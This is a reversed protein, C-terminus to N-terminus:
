REIIVRVECPQPYNGTNDVVVLRLTYVGEPLAGTNWEGLIGNVVPQYHLGDILHWDIPKEGFGFELKYYWFNDIAATGKVFTTGWCDLKTNVYPYTICVRPNCAAVHPTPTLTPKPMWTLKPMCTPVPPPAIWIPRPIILRQGIYILNPNYLNNAKAIAWVTTGYRWAIMSLNEGPMVVHIHRGYGPRPYGWKCPIYLVQGVYIRNPNPICNAKAIAWPSVGYLRGIYSLTEGGKVVHYCPDMPPSAGLGASIVLQLILAGALALLAKKM